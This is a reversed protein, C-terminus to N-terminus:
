VHQAVYILDLSMHALIVPVIRGFRAFFCAFLLFCAGNVLAGPVGQYLHYATQLGVSAAIALAGSGTLAEVETMTFARVIVEEHIPDVVAYLSELTIVTVGAIHPHPGSAALEHGTALLALWNISQRAARRALIAAFLLLGGAPVDIWRRTFGLDQWSQGRRFLVYALVALGVVQIQIEDFLGIAAHPGPTPGHWLDWLSRIVPSGFAVLLVLVLECIRLRRASIAFRTRRLRPYPDADSGDATEEDGSLGAVGEDDDDEADEGVWRGV